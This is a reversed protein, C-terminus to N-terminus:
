LYKCIAIAFIFKLVTQCVTFPGGPVANRRPESRYNQNRCFLTRNKWDSNRRESNRPGWHTEDRKFDLFVGGEVDFLERREEYQLEYTGSADVKPNCGVNIKLIEGSWLRIRATGVVFGDRHRSVELVRNHIKQVIQKVYSGLPAYCKFSEFFNGVVSVVVTEDKSGGLSLDIIKKTQSETDEEPEEDEDTEDDSM